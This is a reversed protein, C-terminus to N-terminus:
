MVDRDNDIWFRLQIFNWVVALVTLAFVAGAVEALETVSSLYFLGLLSGVWVIAVSVISVFAGAAVAFKLKTKWNWDKM